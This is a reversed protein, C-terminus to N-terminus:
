QVHKSRMTARLSLEVVSKEQNITVSGNFIQFTCGSVEHVDSFLASVEANATSSTSTYSALQTTTSAYPIMRQVSPSIQDTNNERTSQLPVIQMNNARSLTLSMERQHAEGATKYSKLSETTKHGSLQAVFNEHINADLLRSISTKRVSHNSIKSGIAQQLGANEAASSLFKGILNKGLPSKKYWPAENSSRKHNIALFFPSDEECMAQPRHSRFKKYYEVPCRNGGIAYCKPQFARTHGQEQGTRTKTGREAVWVLMEEGNMGTQLQVDGWLLKRSEDRARFGFHLSLLWWVTRQLVEPENDGFQGSNFLADEEEDTM